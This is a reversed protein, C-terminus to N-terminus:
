RGRMVFAGRLVPVEFRVENKERFPRAILEPFSLDSGFKPRLFRVALASAYSSFVSVKSVANRAVLLM